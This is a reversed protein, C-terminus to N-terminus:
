DWVKKGDVMSYPANPILLFGVYKNKKWVIKLIEKSLFIETQQFTGLPYTESIFESYENIFEQQSLKKARKTFDEAELVM